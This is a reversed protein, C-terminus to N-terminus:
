SQKIRDHYYEHAADDIERAKKVEEMRESYEDLFDELINEMKALIANKIDPEYLEFFKKGEAVTLYLIDPITITITHSM